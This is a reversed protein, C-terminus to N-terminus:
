AKGKGMAAKGMRWTAGVAIWVIRGPLLMITLWLMARNWDDEFSFPNDLFPSGFLGLNERDVSPRILLAVGLYIALAIWYKPNLGDRLAEESIMASGGADSAFWDRLWLIGFYPGFVILLAFVWLLALKFFEVPRVDGLRQPRTAEPGTLKGKGWGCNSCVPAAGAHETEVVTIPHNCIPCDM